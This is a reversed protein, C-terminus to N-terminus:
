IASRMFILWYKYIDDFLDYKSTTKLEGIFNYLSGFQKKNTVALSTIIFSPNLLNSLDLLLLGPTGIIKVIKIIINEMRNHKIYQYKILLSIIDDLSIKNSKSRYANALLTDYEKIMDMNYYTINMEKLRGSVSINNNINAEIACGVMSIVLGYGDKNYIDTENSGMINMVFNSIIVTLLKIGIKRSVNFSANDSFLIKNLFYHTIQPISLNKNQFYNDAIIDIRNGDPNTNLTRIYSYVYLNKEDDNPVFNGFFIDPSIRTFSTPSLIATELQTIIPKLNSNYMPSKKFSDLYDQIDKFLEVQKNASIRTRSKTINQIVNNVNKYSM